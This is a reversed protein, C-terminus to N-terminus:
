WEPWMSPQDFIVCKKRLPIIDEPACSEHRMLIRNYRSESRLKRLDAGTIQTDRLDLESTNLNELGAPTVQTNGLRLARLWNVNNFQVLIRDTVSSDSLDVIHAHFLRKLLSEGTFEPGNLSLQEFNLQPVAPLSMLDAETIQGRGLRVSRRDLAPLIAATIQTRRLSISQCNWVPLRLLKGLVADTVQTGDLNVKEPCAQGTLCSGDVQTDSLDLDFVRVRRALLVTVGQDTIPNRALKLATMGTAINTAAELDEDTIGTGSLDLTGLNKGQAFRMAALFQVQTDALSLMRLAPLQSLGDNTISTGSLDLQELKTFTNLLPVSENSFKTGALSLRKIHPALKTVRQIDENTAWPSMVVGVIEDNDYDFNAVAADFYEAPKALHRYRALRGQDRYFTGAVFMMTIAAVSATLWRAQRRARRGDTSLASMDEDSLDLPNASTCRAVEARPEYRTLRFGSAILAANGAIWTLVFLPVWQSVQILLNSPYAIFLWIVLCCIGWAALTFGLYGFGRQWWTKTRFTIATVPVVLLLSYGSIMLTGAVATLPNSGPSAFLSNLSVACATVISFFFLDEVRHEARPVEIEASRTLSWGWFSRAGALPAVAGLAVLPLTTAMSVAELQFGLHFSLSWSISAIVALVFLYTRMWGAIWTRGSLGCMMVAFSAQGFVNGILIGEDVGYQRIFAWDTWVMANDLLIAAGICVILPWPWGRRVPDISDACM